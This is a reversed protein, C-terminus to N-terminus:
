RFMLKSNIGAPTAFRDFTDPEPGSPKVNARRRNGTEPDPSLAKLLEFRKGQLIKEKAMAETLLYWFMRDSRLNNQPKRNITISKIYVEICYITVYSQCADNAM